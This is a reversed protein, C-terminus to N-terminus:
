SDLSIVISLYFLDVKYLFLVRYDPHQISQTFISKHLHDLTCVRLFRYFPVQLIFFICNDKKDLNDFFPQRM